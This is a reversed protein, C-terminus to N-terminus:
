ASTLLFYNIIKKELLCNKKDGPPPAPPGEGLKEMKDLIKRNEVSNEMKDLNKMKENQEKDGPAPAPPGGGPEASRAM